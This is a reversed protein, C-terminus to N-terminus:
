VPSAGCLLKLRLLRMKNAFRTQAVTGHAAAVGSERQLAKFKSRYDDAMMPFQKELVCLPKWGMGGVGDVGGLHTCPCARRDFSVGLGCSGGAGAGLLGGGASTVLGLSSPASGQVM